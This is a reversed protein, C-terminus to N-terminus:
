QKQAGPAYMPMSVTFGRWGADPGGVALRTNMRRHLGQTYQAPNSTQMLPYEVTRTRLTQIRDLTGVTVIIAHETHIINACHLQSVGM